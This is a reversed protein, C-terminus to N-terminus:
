CILEKNKAWTLPSLNFLFKFYKVAQSRTWIGNTVQPWYDVTEIDLIRRPRDFQVPVTDYGLADMVATRHNGSAM